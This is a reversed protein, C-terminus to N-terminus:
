EESNNDQGTAPIIKSIKVGCRTCTENELGDAIDTPEKIIHTEFDHGLPGNSYDRMGCRSCIRWELCTAEIYEHGLPKGFEKDCNICQRPKTCDAERSMHFPCEFFVFVFAVYVCMLVAGFFSWLIIMDNTYQKKKDINKSRILAIIYVIFCIAAIIAALVLFKNDDRMNNLYFEWLEAAESNRIKHFLNVFINYFFSM